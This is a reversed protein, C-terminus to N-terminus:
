YCRRPTYLIQDTTRLQLHVSYLFLHVPPGNYNVPSYNTKAIIHIHFIPFLVVLGTCDSIPLMYICNYKFNNCKYIWTRSFKWIVPVTYQYLITNLLLEAKVTILFINHQLLYLYKRQQNCFLEKCYALLWKM